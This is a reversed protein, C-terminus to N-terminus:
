ENTSVAMATEAVPLQKVLVQEVIVFYSRSHRTAMTRFDTTM